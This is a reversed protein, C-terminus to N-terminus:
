CRQLFANISQMAVSVLAATLLLSPQLGDGATNGVKSVEPLSPSAGSTPNATNEYQLVVFDGLFNSYGSITVVNNIMESQLTQTRSSGDYIGSTPDSAAAGSDQLRVLARKTNAGRAMIATANLMLDFTVLKSLGYASVPLGPASFRVIPSVIEVLGGMRYDSVNMALPVASGGLATMLLSLDTFISVALRLGTSACAADAVCLPAVAPDLVVTVPPTASLESALMRRHRAVATGLAAVSMASGAAAALEMNMCGAAISLRSTALRTSSGDCKASNLLGRVLSDTGHIVSALMGRAAKSRAAVSGNGGSSSAAVIDMAGAIIVDFFGAIPQADEFALPQLALKEALSNVGDVAAARGDARALLWLTSIGGFVTLVSSMSSTKNGASAVLEALLTSALTGTSDAFSGNASAAIAGLRRAMTLVVSTPVTSASLVISQIASMERAIQAASVQASVQVKVSACARPGTATLLDRAARVCVYLSNTGEPLGAFIVITADAYPQWPKRVIGGGSNVLLGFEYLLEPYVASRSQWGPALLEFADLTTGSTANVLLCAAPALVCYPPSLSDPQPPAPGPSTTTSTPLSALPSPPSPPPSTEPQQLPQQATPPESERIPQGRSPMTLTPPSAWPSPPPPSPSTEPQQSPRPATPAESERPGPGPFPSPPEVPMPFPPSRDGYPPPPLPISPLPSEVYPPSPPQPMQPGYVPAPGEAVRKSHWVEWYANPNDKQQVTQQNQPARKGLVFLVSDDEADFDHLAEQASDQMLRLSITVSVNNAFVALFIGFCLFKSM